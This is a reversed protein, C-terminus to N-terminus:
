ARKTDNRPPRDPHDPWAGAPNACMAWAVSAGRTRHAVGAIAPLLLAVGHAHDAQLGEPGDHQHAPAQGHSHRGEAGFVQVSPEAGDGASGALWAREAEIAALWATADTEGGAHLRAHGAPGLVGTVLM